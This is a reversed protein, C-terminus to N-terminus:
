SFIAWIAYTLLTANHVRAFRGIFGGGGFQSAGDYGGGGGYMNRGAEKLLWLRKCHEVEAVRQNTDCHHTQETKGSM